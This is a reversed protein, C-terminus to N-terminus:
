TLPPVASVVAITGSHVMRVIARIKKNAEVILSSDDGPSVGPGAFKLSERIGFFLGAGLGEEPHKIQKSVSSRSIFLNATAKSFSNSQTVSLRHKRQEMIMRQEMMTMM